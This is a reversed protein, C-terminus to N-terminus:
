PKPLTNFRELWARGKPTLRYRQQPSNPSEPDTREIWDAKLLPARYANEFHMASRLGMAQQMVKSRQPENLLTDLMAAVQMAVEMTVEMTLMDLVVELENLLSNRLSNVEMTVEPTDEQVPRYLTQKVQGQEQIFRPPPLGAAKSRAIMDLTGTGVKEIYRALYMPEAILPNRPISAHPIRLDELSLEQPYAGPNWVELRDKFLMVQVSAGSAYDRHVVANVIAESVALRPIEPTVPVAVSEARTGVAHALKGMVFHLAQDVLEFVTGKFIKYDPMPKAVETGFFHVCKVESTILFRQPAQAFLLVAAHSPAHGDLLNLHTLVDVMPTGPGLAFNREAQAIRLFREVKAPDLDDLTADPCAAADFPKTRIIGTRKLHEVLSAYLAANLEPVSGVRKRVLQAGAKGILAAMRPDRAHEDTGWVYILREKDQATARDYERETPSLGDADPQGYGMGFLGVYIDCRDVEDLYVADTRQDTAPLDEFLFVEYHQGLLADNRVFDKLARREQALEQQVSSIFIRTM